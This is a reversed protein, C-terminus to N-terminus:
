KGNFKGEPSRSLNKKRGDCGVRELNSSVKSVEPAFVDPRQWWKTGGKEAARERYGKM